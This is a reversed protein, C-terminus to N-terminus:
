IQKKVGPVKWKGNVMEEKPWYIRLMLNFNAKPAPLWNNQKDNGPNENQIYIDVSGDINKRLPNRDGISYRNISNDYFFGATDYLTLSWFANTPPTQGKDFHLIYKNKAGDYPNNDIDVTSSPYMADKDLNAGWGTYAVGARFKYNTGYNGLGRELSWGNIAKSTGFGNKLMETKAWTSIVNISDQVTKSFKSIEFKAGPAIGVLALKKIIVSDAAAPPNTTLLKNFTNFFDEASMDMVADGPAKRPISPDITGKPAIYPKGYASLPTIKFGEQIKRVVDAGDKQSNVQTRGLLVIMNTPAKVQQMGSPIQGNWGPGTILYTQAKTGTNRKGPCFFVNSWADLMPLLYYRNNTNPVQFVLPEKELNIWCSTYYTDVNMRIVTHDKADPFHSASVLQNIPARMPGNDIVIKQTNTMVRQTAYFLIVPYAFEYGERVTQIIQEDSLTKNNKESISKKETKNCAIFAIMCVSLLIKKNM